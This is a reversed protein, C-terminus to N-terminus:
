PAREIEIMPEGYKALIEYKKENLEDYFKNQHM